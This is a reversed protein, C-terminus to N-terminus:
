AQSGQAADSATRPSVAAGTDTKKPLVFTFKSGKGTESCPSEAWMRGGHAEVIRRSLSLGLGTGDSKVNSGRFFDQFIKPLDGPPIGVGTDIVEVRLGDETEAVRLSVTGEETYNIANSLLNVIVQQLRRSSGRIRPSTEPLEVKLDLHKEKALSEVSDVAREAVENFSLDQMEQVLLGAEMRPIDLLDSILSLLGDIRRTSRQLLDRQEENVPGAYGDKIAWLCSQTASLPARLDHTIASLFRIIRRKEERLKAVEKSIQELERTKETLLESKIQNLEMLEVEILKERTVNRFAALMCPTQDSDAFPSSVIEYVTGDAFRREWRETAGKIVDPLKCLGQCPGERGHLHQYCHSGVGDGFQRIMSPNMFRIVRDPGIIVVGEDLSNLIGMFRDRESKLLKELHRAWEAENGGMFPGIMSGVLLCAALPLGLATDGLCFASGVLIGMGCIVLLRFPWGVTRKRQVNVTLFARKRAM